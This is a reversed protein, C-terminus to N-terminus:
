SDLARDRKLGIRDRELTEDKALRLLTMFGAIEGELTQPAAASQASVRDGGKSAKACDM